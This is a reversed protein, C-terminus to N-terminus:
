PAELYAEIAELYRGAGDACGCGLRTRWCDDPTCDAHVALFEEAGEALEELLEEEIMGLGHCLGAAMSPRGSGVLQEALSRATRMM